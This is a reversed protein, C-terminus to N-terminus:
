LNALTQESIIDTPLSAAELQAAVAAPVRLRLLLNMQDRAAEWAGRPDSGGTFALNAAALDLAQRALSGDAANPELNTAYISLFGNGEYVLEFFRTQSPFDITSAQMLEWYGGAAGAAPLVVQSSNYHGHGCVHLVVNPSAALTARLTDPSVPSQSGFDESRHHSAVIVLENAAEAAALQGQLWTLQAEDIGGESTALQLTALAILRVPVNAAPRLSYYAIGAAANEATFGHGAPEGGADLFLQMLDPVGLIARAPDAPTPGTTLLRPFPADPVRCGNSMGETEDVGLSIKFWDFVKGDVAAAKVADTAAAFGSYNVEHNGIVFYWPVGIGPSRFPDSSDNGPGPVPDDNLGSDPDIEGGNLIGAGWTLENRQGGDSMDGTVLAFDLPRSAQESIRRASRVQAEFAQTSLDDQPRFTSGFSVAYVGEFRIPSEEDTQHIDTAQWFWLVSRRQGSEGAVFDPALDDHEAWPQGDAIEAGLGAAAYGDLDIIKLEKAAIRATADASLARPAWTRQLTTYVAPDLEYDVPATPPLGSSGGGGGCAAPGVGLALAAVLVLYGGAFRQRGESRM